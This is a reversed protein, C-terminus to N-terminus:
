WLFIPERRCMYHRFCSYSLRPQNRLAVLLPHKISGGQKKLDEEARLRRAKKTVEILQEATELKGDWDELNCGFVMRFRINMRDCHVSLKAMKEELYATAAHHEDRAVQAATIVDSVMSTQEEKIRIAENRQIEDVAALTLNQVARCSESVIARYQEQWQDWVKQQINASLEDEKCFFPENASKTWIAGVPPTPSVIPSAESAKAAAAPTTPKVTKVKGTQTLTQSEKGPVGLEDPFDADHRQRGAVSDSWASTFAAPSQAAHTGELPSRQVITDSHDRKRNVDPAPSKLRARKAASDPDPASRGGKMQVVGDVEEVDNDGRFLKVRLYTEACMNLRMPEHSLGFEASLKHKPTLMTNGFYKTSGTIKNLRKTDMPEMMKHHTKMVVDLSDRASKQHDNRYHRVMVSRRTTTLGNCGQSRKGAKTCRYIPHHHMHVEVIHRQFRAKTVYVKQKEKDMVCIEFPCVNRRKVNYNDVAWLLKWKQDHHYYKPLTNKLKHIWVAYFKNPSEDSREERLWEEDDSQGDKDIPDPLAYSSHGKRCESFCMPNRDSFHDRANDWISKDSVSTPVDEDSPEVTEETIEVSEAVSSADDEGNEHESAEGEEVEMAEADQSKKKTTVKTWKGEEKETM